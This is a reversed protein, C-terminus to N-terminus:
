VSGGRSLVTWLNPPERYVSRTPVLTEVQLASKSTWTCLTLIRAPLAGLLAGSDTYEVSAGNAAARRVNPLGTLVEPHAQLYAVQYAVAKRLRSLDAETVDSLDGDLDVPVYLSVVDQAQQVDADNLSLSFLASVEAATIILAM